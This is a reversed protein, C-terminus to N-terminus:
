NKGNTTVTIPWDPLEQRVFSYSPKLSEGLTTHDIDVKDAVVKSLFMKEYQMRLASDGQLISEHYGQALLEEFAVGTQKEIAELITKASIKNTTGAPRGSNPRAGGHKSKPNEQNSKLDM